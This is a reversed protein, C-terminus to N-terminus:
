LGRQLKNHKVFKLYSIKLNFNVTRNIPDDTLYFAPGILTILGDKLSIPGLERDILPLPKNLTIILAQSMQDKEILSYGSFTLLYNIADGITQINRTFRIQITQSLLNIQSSKPKNSITSYRGIQTVNEYALCANCFIACILTIAVLNRKM